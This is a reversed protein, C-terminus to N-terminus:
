DPSSSLMVSLDHHQWAPAHLASPDDSNTSAPLRVASGAPPRVCRLPFRPQFWSGEGGPHLGPGEGGPTVRGRGGIMENGPGRAVTGQASYCDDYHNGDRSYQLFPSPLHSATLPSRAPSSRKQSGAVKAGKRERYRPEAMTWYNSFSTQAIEQRMRIM